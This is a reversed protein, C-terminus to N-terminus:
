ANVRGLEKLLDSLGEKTKKWDELAKANAYWRFYAQDDGLDGSNFKELFKETNFGYETEYPQLKEQLQLIATDCVRKERELVNVVEPQLKM